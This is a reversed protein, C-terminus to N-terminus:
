QLVSTLQERQAWGRVDFCPCDKHVNPFDRHGLALANPHRNSLELLLKKLSEYQHRTFNCESTKGDAKVGGVLCIGLSGTNHGEVHAGVENEKRGKEITGDRRIVFHYGIKLFGRARHWKDIEKVGVDLSAPSASCHVVLYRINTNTAM